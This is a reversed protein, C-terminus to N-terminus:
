TSCNKCLGFFGLHVHQLKFKKEQFLQKAIAEKYDLFIEEVNNCEHCILFHHEDSKNDFCSCQKWKGEFEHILKTKELKGLVRYITSNDIKIEKEHLKKEINKVSLLANSSSLVKVISNVAVTNNWKKKIFEKKVQTSLNSM